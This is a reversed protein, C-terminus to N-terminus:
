LKVKFSNLDLNTCHQLILQNALLQASIIFHARFLYKNTLFPTLSLPMKTTNAEPQWPFCAVLFFFGVMESPTKTPTAM